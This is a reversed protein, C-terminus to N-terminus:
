VGNNKNTCLCVSICLLHLLMIFLESPGPMILDIDSPWRPFSATNIAAAPAFRYLERPASMRSHSPSSSSLPGVNGASSARVNACAASGFESGISGHGPLQLMSVSRSVSGHLHHRLIVSSLHAGNPDGEDERQEVTSPDTDYRKLRSYQSEKSGSACDVSSLVLVFSSIHNNWDWTSHLPIFMYIFYLRALTTYFKNLPSTATFIVSRHEATAAEGMGLVRRYESMTHRSFVICVVPILLPSFSSRHQTTPTPFSYFPHTLLHPFKKLEMVVQIYSGNKKSIYIYIYIYIDSGHSFPPWAILM